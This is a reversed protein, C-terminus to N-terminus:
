LLKFYLDEYGAPIDSRVLLRARKELRQENNLVIKFENKRRKKQVLNSNNSNATNNTNNRFTHTIKAQQHQQGIGKKDKKFITAIPTMRGQRRKGLGGSVEDWGMNSLMQFGKNNSNLALSSQNNCPHKIENKYMSIFTNEEESSNSIRDVIDEIIITAMNTDNNHNQETPSNTTQLSSPCQKKPISSSNSSLRSYFEHIPEEEIIVANQNNIIRENAADM